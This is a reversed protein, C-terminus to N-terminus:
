HGDRRSRQFLKWTTLAVSALRGLRGVGNIVRGPRRLIRAALMGSAAALAAVAVPHRKILGWGEGLWNERSRFRQWDSTLKLRNIDSQLGLQTRKLRLLELEKAQFMAWTRCAHEFNTEM